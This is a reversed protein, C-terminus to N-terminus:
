VVHYPKSTHTRGLVNSSTTSGQTDTDMKMLGQQNNKNLGVGNKDNSVGAGMGTSTVGGNGGGGGSKMLGSSMSDWQRIIERNIEISKRSHPINDERLRDYVDCERQGMSLQVYVDNEDTNSETSRNGSTDDFQDNPYRSNFIVKPSKKSMLQVNVYENKTCRLPPTQIPTKIAWEKDANKARLSTISGVSSSAGDLRDLADLSRAHRHSVRRLSESWLEDEEWLLDGASENSKASVDNLQHSNNSDVATTAMQSNISQRYDSAASAATYNNSKPSSVNATFRNDEKIPCIQKGYLKNGAYGTSLEKCVNKEMRLEGAEFLNKRNIFRDKETVNLLEMSLCRVEPSVNIPNHIHSIGTRKQEIDRQNNLKPQYLEEVNDAHKGDIPSPLDAYYYPASQDSVNSNNRSHIPPPPLSCQVMNFDTSCVTQQDMDISSSTITFSQAPLALTYSNLLDKSKCELDHLTLNQEKLPSLTMESLTESSKDELSDYFIGNPSCINSRTAASNTVLDGLRFKNDIDQAKTSTTEFENLLNENSSSVYSINGYFNDDSENRFVKPPKIFPIDYLKSEKIWSNDSNSYTAYPDNTQLKNLYQDLDTTVIRESFKDGMLEIENFSEESLPRRRLQRLLDQDNASRLEISDTESDNPTTQYRGCPSASSSALQNTPTGFSPSQLKVKKYLDYDSSTISSNDTHYSYSSESPLKHTTVNNYPDLFGYDSENNETKRNAAKQQHKLFHDPLSLRSTKINDKRISNLSSSSSHIKPIQDYSLNLGSKDQRRKITDYNESSFIEETKLDDLPPPSSPIPPPSVIESDSSDPCEALPTSAGLYYSAPRFTDSLSFRSRSRLELADPEKSSEDDADSSDSNTVVNQSPKLIDPLNTSSVTSNNSASKKQRKKLDSYRKLTSKKITSKGNNIVSEINKNAPSNKLQSLEMYVPESETRKHSSNICVLDYDSRYDDALISTTLGIRTMEVYTSEDIEKLDTLQLSTFINSESLSLISKKPTMPMYHGESFDDIIIMNSNNSLESENKNSNTSEDPQSELAEDLDDDTYELNTQNDEDEDENDDEDNDNNVSNLTKNIAEMIEIAPTVTTEDSMPQMETTVSNNLTSGTSTSSASDNLSLNNKKELVTPSANVISNDAIASKQTYVPVYTDKDLLLTSLDKTIPKIPNQAVIHSSVM